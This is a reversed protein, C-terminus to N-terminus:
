VVFEQIGPAALGDSGGVLFRNTAADYVQLIPGSPTPTRMIVLTGSAVVADARQGLDTWSRRELGYVAVMRAGGETGSSAGTDSLLAALIRDSLAVAEAARGLNEPTTADARVLQVVRDDTDGDGNLDVGEPHGPAGAIEPRLFAAAGGFTAVADAPAVSVPG